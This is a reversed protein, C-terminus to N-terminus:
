LYAAAIAAASPHEGSLTVVPCPATMIIRYTRQPPLHSALRSKKRVGLVIAQAQHATAYEVIAHSVDSGYMVDRVPVVECHVERQTMRRLAERMISELIPEETDRASLPLVHICHLPVHYSNAYAAAFHLAESADEKFDTAFIVPHSADQHSIGHRLCGATLVPCSARRFVAEATSGFVLREMGLTARTGMVVLDAKQWRIQELIVTPANGDLMLSDADAGLDLLKQLVPHLKRHQEAYLREVYDLAEETAVPMPGYECVHLVTVRARTHRWISEACALAADSAPSFDTCLLIKRISLEPKAIDRGPVVQREPQVKSDTGPTAM